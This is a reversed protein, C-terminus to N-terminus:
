SGRCPDMRPVRLLLLLTFWSPTGEEPTFRRSDYLQHPLAASLSCRVEWERGWGPEILWVLAPGSLTRVAVSGGKASCRGCGM